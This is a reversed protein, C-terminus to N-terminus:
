RPEILRAGENRPSNVSDSVVTTTWSLAHLDAVLARWRSADPARELWEDEWPRPLVVPMRHHLASLAPAAPATLLACTEVPDQGEEPIWESVIGAFAFVSEGDLAHWHPRRASPPTLRFPEDPAAHEEGEWEFYGSAPVLCRRTAFATRFAAKQAVTEMRANIWERGKAPATRGPRVGPPTSEPVLGWRLSRLERGALIGLIAQSPAINYRPKHGEMTPRASAELDFRAELQEASAYLGFRGCM